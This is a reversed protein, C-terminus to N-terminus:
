QLKEYEGVTLMTFTPFIFGLYPVNSQIKKADISVLNTIEGIDVSPTALRLAQFMLSYM